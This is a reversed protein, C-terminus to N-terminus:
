EPPKGGQGGTVEKEGESTLGSKLGSGVEGYRDGVQDVLMTVFWMNLYREWSKLEPYLVVLVPKFSQVADEPMVNPNFRIFYDMLRADQVPAGKTEAKWECVEQVTEPLSGNEATYAAMDSVFWRLTYFAGSRYIGVLLGGFIGVSFAFVTFMVTWALRKVCVLFFTGAAEDARNYFMDLGDKRM